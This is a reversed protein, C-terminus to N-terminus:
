LALWLMMSTWETGLGSCPKLFHKGLMAKGVQSHKKWRTLSSPNGPWPSGSQQDRQLTGVGQPGHLCYEPMVVGRMLFNTYSLRTPVLFSVLRM